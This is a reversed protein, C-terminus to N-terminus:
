NWDLVTGNGKFRPCLHASIAIRWSNRRVKCSVSKNSVFLANYGGITTAVVQNAKLDFLAWYLIRQSALALPHVSTVGDRSIGRCGLWFLCSVSASSSSSSSCECVMINQPLRKAGDEWPSASCTELSCHSVGFQLGLKSRVQRWKKVESSSTAPSGCM